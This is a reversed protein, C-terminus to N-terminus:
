FSSPFYQYAVVCSSRSCRGLAILRAYRGVPVDVKWWGRELNLAGAQRMIQM